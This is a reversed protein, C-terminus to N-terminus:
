FVAEEHLLKRTQTSLVHMNIIVILCIESKKEAQVIVSRRGNGSIKFYNLAGKIEWSRGGVVQCEYLYCMFM